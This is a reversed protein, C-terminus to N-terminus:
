APITQPMGKEAQTVNPRPTTGKSKHRSRASGIIKREKGLEKPMVLMNGCWCGPQVSFYRKNRGRLSKSLAGLSTLNCSIAPYNPGSTAFHLLEISVVFDVVGTFRIRINPFNM